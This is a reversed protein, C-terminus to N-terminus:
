RRLPVVNSAAQPDLIDGILDALKQLAMPRRTTTSPAPRLHRRGRAPCPRSRAGCARQQCPRPEDPQARHPAPRPSGVAAHGAAARAHAQRAAAEGGDRQPLSRRRAAPFVFRSGAIQPTEAIVQLRWRRCSSRASAARRAARRRCRGCGTRRSTPTSCASWRPGASRADAAAIRVLGNYSRRSRRRRDM